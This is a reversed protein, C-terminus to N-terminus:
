KAEKVIELAPLTLYGISIKPDGRRADLSITCGSVPGNGVTAMIMHEINTEAAFHVAIFGEGKDTITVKM